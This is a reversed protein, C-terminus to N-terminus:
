EDHEKNEMARCLRVITEALYKVARGDGTENGEYELAEAYMKWSIGNMYPGPPIKWVEQELVSVKWELHRVMSELNEIHAQTSM